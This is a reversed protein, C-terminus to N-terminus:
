ISPLRNMWPRLCWLAFWNCLRFVTQNDRTLYTFRIFLIDMIILGIQKNKKWFSFAHVSNDYTDYLYIALMQYLCDIAPFSLTPCLSGNREVNRVLQVDLYADCRDCKWSILHFLYGIVTHMISILERAVVSPTIDCLTLNCHFANWGFGITLHKGMTNWM